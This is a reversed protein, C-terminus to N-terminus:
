AQDEMSELLSFITSYSLNNRYYKASNWNSEKVLFHLPMQEIPVEMNPIKDYKIYVNEYGQPGPHQM